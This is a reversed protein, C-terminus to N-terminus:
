HLRGRPEHEPAEATLVRRGYGIVFHRTRAATDLWFIVARGPSVQESWGCPLDPFVGAEVQQFLWEWTGEVDVGLPWTPWDPYLGLREAELASIRADAFNRCADCDNGAGGNGAASSVTKGRRTKTVADGTHRRGSPLTRPLCGDSTAQGQRM